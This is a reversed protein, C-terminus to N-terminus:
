LENKKPIPKSFSSSRPKARPKSQNEETIQNKPTPRGKVPQKAFPKRKISWGLDEGELITLTNGERQVKLDWFRGVPKESLTGQLKLKFFKSKEQNEGCSQRIKVIIVQREQSAYVVEGRISFFDAQLTLSADAATNHPHLTEPEWIGTIQLHLLDNGQRTRPYVVWLHPQSLDIHKKFLCLMKGLLVADIEEGKDTILRGRTIEGKKLRFTGKVLGIARNQRPHSPTPIPTLSPPSPNSLDSISPMFSDENTRSLLLSIKSIYVSILKIKATKLFSSMWISASFSGTNKNM